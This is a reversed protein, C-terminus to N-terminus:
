NFMSVVNTITWGGSNALTVVDTRTYGDYKFDVQITTLDDDAQLINSSTSVSPSGSNSKLYEMLESKSMTNVNDGRKVNFKFNEDLVKNLDTIKGHAIADIYINLVDDKTLKDAVPKVTANATTCVILM